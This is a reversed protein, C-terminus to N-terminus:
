IRLQFELQGRKTPLLFTLMKPTLLGEGKLYDAFGEVLTMRGRHANVNEHSFNTYLDDKYQHLTDRNPQFKELITLESHELQIGLGVLAEKVRAITAAQRTRKYEASSNPSGTELFFLGKIEPLVKNKTGRFYWSHIFCFFRLLYAKSNRKEGLTVAKSDFQHLHFVLDEQLKSIFRSTLARMQPTCSLASVSMSNLFEEYSKSHSDDIIRGTTLQVLKQENQTALKLVASITAGALIRSLSLNRNREEPKMISIAAAYEVFSSIFANAIIQRPYVPVNELVLRADTYDIALHKLATRHPYAVVSVVDSSELISSIIPEIWPATSNLITRVITKDSLDNNLENFGLEVLSPQIFLQVEDIGTCM